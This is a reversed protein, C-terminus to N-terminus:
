NRGFPGAVSGDDLVALFYPTEAEGGCNRLATQLEACRVNAGNLASLLNAIAVKSREQDALLGTVTAQSEALTARMARNGARENELNDLAEALNRRLVAVREPPAAPTRRLANSIAAAAAGVAAAIAPLPRM